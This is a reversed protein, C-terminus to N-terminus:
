KGKLTNILNVVDNAEVILSEPALANKNFQAVDLAITLSAQFKNFAKSVSPVGTSPLSGKVVLDLYVDVAATTTHEVSYLTNFAVRQQSTTCGIFLCVVLFLPILKKM